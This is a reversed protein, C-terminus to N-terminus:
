QASVDVCVVDGKANRCYIRGNSLVPTTWCKGGMVQAFSIPTFGDPSADAVMLAGKESIVVLKGDAMTLAGKGVSKDTWTVEGTDFALCRLQDEDVGYLCGKWLICSNFHNRMNKNEWVASAKKGEVKLVTAGRNYGSSVFVRDGDLIPQAANVDYDTKWPHRWLETGDKVKLAIIAQAGFLAVARDAGTGFPQPTSYGAADKGNTWVVKGTKKDLATGAGGADLLVLDGEVLASSAFGWTPIKVGLEETLNKSWLVTGKAADFCFVQGRKSLTYVRDGDVTPTGHTGGEYYKADLPCPYSQRWIERGTAADFCFVTDKEEANGMTCVRGNAVSFSSFGVGVSAKWLQKPGEAPWKVQWGTEKSIGDLDPGRWRYWDAGNAAAVCLTASAFLRFFVPSEMAVCSGSEAGGTLQM